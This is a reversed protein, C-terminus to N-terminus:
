DALSWTGDEGRCARLVNTARLARYYTKVQIERCTKGDRTVTKRAISEGGARTDENSWSLRKGDPTQDLLEKLMSEHKGRDVDNFHAAPVENAFQYNFAQAASAATLAVAVAVLHKLLKGM